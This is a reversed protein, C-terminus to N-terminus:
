ASVGFKIKHNASDVSPLIAELIEALTVENWHAATWNESSLNQAAQYLKGGHTVIQGKVYAKKQWAPAIQSNIEAVASQLGTINGEATTMRNKVDSIETGASSMDGQLEAVDDSVAKIGNEMHNLDGSYIIEHGWTKPTYAM